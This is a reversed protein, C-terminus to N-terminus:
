SHAHFKGREARIAQTKDALKQIEERSLVRLVIVHDDREEFREHARELAEPNVLRRKIKTWRAGPPIETSSRGAPLVGERIHDPYEPFPDTRSPKLISKSPRRNDYILRRRPRLPPILTPKEESVKILRSVSDRIVNELDDSRSIQLPLSAVLPHQKSNQMTVRTHRKRRARATRIDRKANEEDGENGSDSDSENVSPDPIKISSEQRPRLRLDFNKIERLDDPSCSLPVTQYHPAIWEFYADINSDTTTDEVRAAHPQSQLAAQLGM